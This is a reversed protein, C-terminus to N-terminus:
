AAGKRAAEALALRQEVVGITDRLVGNTRRLVDVRARAIELMESTHRKSKDDDCFASLRGIADALCDLIDVHPEDDPYEDLILDGTEPRNEELDMETELQALTGNEAAVAVTEVM